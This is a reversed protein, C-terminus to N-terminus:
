LRGRSSMMPLPMSVSLGIEGAVVERRDPFREVAALGVDGLDGVHAGVARAERHFHVRGTEDVFALPADDRDRAVETAAV